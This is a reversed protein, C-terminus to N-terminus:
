DVQCKVPPTQAPSLLCTRIIALLILRWREVPKLQEAISRRYSLLGAAARLSAPMLTSQNGRNTKHGIAHLL